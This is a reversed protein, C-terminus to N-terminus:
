EHRAQRHNALDNVAAQASGPDLGVIGILHRRYAADLDAAALAELVATAHERADGPDWQGVQRAGIFVALFANGTKQSVGPVLRLPATVADDIPPRDARLEAVTAAAHTLRVGTATLQRIVAADHEAQSAVDIVAAAYALGAHRDLVRSRDQDYHISAAYTGDPLLNSQVWIADTTDAPTQEAM